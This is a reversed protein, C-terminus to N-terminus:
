GGAGPIFCRVVPTMTGDVEYAPYWWVMAVGNLNPQKVVADKYGGGAMDWTAEVHEADGDDCCAVGSKSKLSKFWAKLDPRLHDHSHALDKAFLAAAGLAVILSFIRWPGATEVQMVFRGVAHAAQQSQISIEFSAVDRREVSAFM